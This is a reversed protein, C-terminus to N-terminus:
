KGGLVAIYMVTYKCLGVPPERVPSKKVPPPVTQHLTTSLTTPGKVTQPASDLSHPMLNQIQDLILM